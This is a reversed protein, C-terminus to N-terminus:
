KSNFEELLSQEDKTMSPILIDFDWYNYHKKGYVKLVVRKIKFLGGSRYDYKLDKYLFQDLTNSSRFCSLLDGIERTM